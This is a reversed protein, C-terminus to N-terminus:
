HRLTVVDSGRPDTLVVRLARRAYDYATRRIAARQATVTVPRDPVGHIVLEIETWWAPYSGERALLRFEAGNATEAYEFSQRLFHGRQHGFSHGDDAYLTGTCDRGPYVALELPGAAVEGTHQVIGQRPLISGSRVFVALEALSPAVPIAAATITHGTWYDFWPGEPLAVISPSTMEGFPPPAIMLAAGLMFQAEPQRNFMSHMGLMSPCELFLPRLMPVGTRSAEEAVTYIYPLLQYRAEVFRRRIAEHEPGDLWPERAASETYCHSRYLPHFAAVKFWQTLLEPPPSGFFGGVDAGIFGFGSLGANLLMPTTMRLHNWTASNDGTWSWGYRQGGAFSARTLVFPREDPRLTMLGEYTARANQMGVVNHLEAHSAQRPEFGPEAIRHVADLPMTGEPGNDVVPENMDNWFGAVGAAVFDRYLSGWWARTDAKTFDPYVAAGPWSAGLFVGGAADHVFHDGAMGSHFPPYNHAAHAIHLDTILVTRIDRAALASVMGPLDPFTEPNVTFPRYHDQYDIDCWIVDAPFRRSRLGEAVALVEAQSMYSFRCQQFGLAWRPPLPPLGTLHAYATIVGRPDPAHLLYYDAVGGEAGFSTIGRRARGFDFHSRWSNDLLIGYAGGERAALFFPVAKYMPTSQEQYCGADTTWLTFSGGTRDLPGPQDGLGFFHEGHLRKRHIAFGGAQLEPPHGEADECVLTGDARTVILRGSARLVRVILRATAFGVADHERLQRVPAAARRASDLVAWSVHEVWGPRAAMRVRIIDERPATLRLWVAGALLEIGDPLSRVAAVAGTTAREDPPVAGENAAPDEAPMGALSEVFPPHWQLRGTRGDAAQGIAVIAGSAARAPLNAGDCRAAFGHYGDDRPLDAVAMGIAQGHEVLRVVIARNAPDAADSVWGALIRAGTEANFEFRDVNGFIRDTPM